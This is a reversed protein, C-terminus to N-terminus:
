EHSLPRADPNASLDVQVCSTINACLSTIRRAKRAETVPICSVSASERRARMPLARLATAAMGVQAEAVLTLDVLAARSAALSYLYAGLGM